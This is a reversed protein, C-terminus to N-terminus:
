STWWGCDVWSTQALGGGLVDWTTSSSSSSAASLYIAVLFVREFYIALYPRYYVPPFPHRPNGSLTCVGQSSHHRFEVCNRNQETPGEAPWWGDPACDFRDDDNQRRSQLVHWFRIDYKTLHVNLIHVHINHISFKSSISLPPKPLICYIQIHFM